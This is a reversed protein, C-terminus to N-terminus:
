FCFGLCLNNLSTYDWPLLPSFPFHSLFIHCAICAYCRSWLFSSSDWDTVQCTVQEAVGSTELCSVSHKLFTKWLFFCFSYKEARIWKLEQKGKLWLCGEWVKPIHPLLEPLLLTHKVYYPIEYLDWLLPLIWLSQAHFQDNESPLVEHAVSETLYPLLLQLQACPHFFLLYYSYM